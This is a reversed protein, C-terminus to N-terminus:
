QCIASTYLGLLFLGSGVIWASVLPVFLCTLFSRFPWRHNNVKRDPHSLEIAYLMGFSSPAQRITCGRLDIIFVDPGRVAMLLLSHGELRVVVGRRTGKKGAWQMIARTGSGQAGRVTGRAGPPGGDVLGQSNEMQREKEHMADMAKRVGGELARLLSWVVMASGLFFGILVGLLFM